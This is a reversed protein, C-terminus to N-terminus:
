IGIVVVSTKVLNIRQTDFLPLKKFNNTLLFSATCLPIIITADRSHKDIQLIVGVNGRETIHAQSQVLFNSTDM